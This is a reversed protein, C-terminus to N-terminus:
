MLWRHMLPAAPEYGFYKAYGPQSYKLPIATRLKVRTDSSGPGGPPPNALVIGFSIRKDRLDSHYDINFGDADARVTADYPGGPLATPLIVPQTNKITSRVTTAAHDPAMVGLIGKGGNSMGGEVRWLDPLM